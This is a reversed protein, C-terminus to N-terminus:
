TFFADSNATYSFTRTVHQLTASFNDLLDVFCTYCKTIHCKSTHLERPVIKNQQSM